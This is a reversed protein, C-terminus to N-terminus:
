ICDMLRLGKSEVDAILSSFILILDLRRVLFVERWRIPSHVFGHRLMRFRLFPLAVAKSFFVRGPGILQAHDM